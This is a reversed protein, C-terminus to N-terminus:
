RTEGKTEGNTPEDEEQQETVEAETGKAAMELSRFLREFDRECSQVFYESVDVESPQKAESYPPLTNLVEDADDRLYDERIVSWDAVHRRYAILVDRLEAVTNLVLRGNVREFKARSM